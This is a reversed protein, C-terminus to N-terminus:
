EALTPLSEHEYHSRVHPKVRDLRETPVATKRDRDYEILGSDALKPLHVHHLSTRVRDFEAEPVDTISRDHNRRLITTTLDRVTLTRDHGALLALVTRRHPNALLEFTTEM